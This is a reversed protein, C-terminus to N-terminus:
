PYRILAPEGAIASGCIGIGANQSLALSARLVELMSTLLFNTGLKVLKTRWSPDGFGTTGRGMTQPMPRIRNRVAAAGAWAILAYGARTLNVAM